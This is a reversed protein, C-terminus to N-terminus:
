GRGAPVPTQGLRHPEAAPDPSDDNTECDKDHCPPCREQDDLCDPCYPAQCDQCSALCNRCYGDHCGDCIRLCAKCFTEGCAGCNAHCEDCLSVGCRSCGYLEEEDALYGCDDCSQGQWDEIAVYPSERNYTRLVGTVLVFFDFLRCQILALRIAARGEGECLIEDIVHPHTVTDRSNAPHPEKAIVRYPSEATLRSWDLRIEFPGLYLGALEIPETSVALWRKHCDFELGDFHQELALLDQHVDSLRIPQTIPRDLEQALVALEGQLSRMAHRLDLRLEAAALQWGHEEARRIQCALQQTREWAPCPIGALPLRHDRSALQSLIATALRLLKKQLAPCTM